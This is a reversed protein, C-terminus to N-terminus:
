NSTSWKMDWGILWSRPRSSVPVISLPSFAMAISITCPLLSSSYQSFTGSFTRLCATCFATPACCDARRISATGSSSGFRLLFRSLYYCYCKIGCLPGKPNYHMSMFCFQVVIRYCLLSFRCFVLGVAYVISLFFKLRLHNRTMNTMVVDDRLLPLRTSLLDWM